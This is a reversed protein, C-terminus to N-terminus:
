TSEQVFKLCPVFHCPEPDLDREEEEKGNYQKIFCNIFSICHINPVLVQLSYNTQIILFVCVIFTKCYLVLSFNHTVFVTRSQAVVVRSLAISVLVLLRNMDSLDYAKKCYLILLFSTAVGDVSKM